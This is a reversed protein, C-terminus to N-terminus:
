IYEDHDSDDQTVTLNESPLKEKDVQPREPTNLARSTHVQKQAKPNERYKSLVRYRSLDAVFLKVSQVRQQGLCSPLNM